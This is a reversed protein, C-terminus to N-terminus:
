RLAAFGLAVHSNSNESDFHHWLLKKARHRNWTSPADLLRHEKAGSAPVRRNQALPDPHSNRAPLAALGVKETNHVVALIVFAAFAAPHAKHALAFAVPAVFPVEPNNYSDSALVIV